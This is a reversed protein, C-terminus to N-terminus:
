KRGLGFVKRREPTKLIFQHMVENLDLNFTLDEYIYLLLLHTLRKQTMTQRLYNKIYKLASFSRECTCSTAPFTLLLIVLKEIESLMERAVKPLERLVDAVESVCKPPEPMVSKTFIKLQSKLTFLDFDTAHIGLRQQLQDHDESLDVERQLLISELQVLKNMGPQDFRRNM